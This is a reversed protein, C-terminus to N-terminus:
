IVNASYGFILQIIIISIVGQTLCFSAIGIAMWIGGLILTKRRGIKNSLSPWFIQGMMGTITLVASLGAAKALDMGVISYLTGPFITLFGLYM